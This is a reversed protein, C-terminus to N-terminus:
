PRYEGEIHPFFARAQAENLKAGGELTWEIWMGRTLDDLSPVGAIYAAWDGVDGRKAVVLVPMLPPTNFTYHYGLCRDSLDESSTMRFQNM